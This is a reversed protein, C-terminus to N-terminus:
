AAPAMLRGAWWSAARRRRGPHARRHGHIRGGREQRRHGRRGGAGKRRAASQPPRGVQVQALPVDEETGDDRLRRATKPALGLLAKIAASTASRARLELVQGLLTLSVIVAAAEFYVGIRGHELFSAPFVQPALTAVASYLWAIGVGTGILTWMNPSRNALSQRWRVFFPWGAWWVVPASLVLEAWSQTAPALWQLRHGGMAFVTVVVTLPLTWGFRRTFDVLEPSPGEDLAPLVPELAM